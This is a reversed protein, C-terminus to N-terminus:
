KIKPWGQEDVDHIPDALLLSEMDTFKEFIEIALAAPEGVSRDSVILGEDVLAQVAPLDLRADSKTHVKKMVEAGRPTFSYYAGSATNIAVSEGDLDDFVVNQPITLFFM